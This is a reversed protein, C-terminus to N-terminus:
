LSLTQGDLISYGLLVIFFQDARFDINQHFARALLPQLRRIVGNDLHGAARVAVADNNKIAVGTLCSLEHFNMDIIAATVRQYSANFGNVNDGNAPEGLQCTLNPRPRAPTKGNVRFCQNEFRASVARFVFVMVDGM